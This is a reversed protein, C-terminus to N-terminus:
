CGRRFDTLRKLGYHIIDVSQRKADNDRNESDLACKDDLTRYQFSKIVCDIKTQM